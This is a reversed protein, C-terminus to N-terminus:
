IDRDTNHLMADIHLEPKPTYIKKYEQGPRHRQRIQRYNGGAYLDNDDISLAVSRNGLKNMYAFGYIYM